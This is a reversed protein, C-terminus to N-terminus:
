DLEDIWGLEDASALEEVWNLEETSVFEEEDLLEM